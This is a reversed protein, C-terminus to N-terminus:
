PATEGATAVAQPKNVPAGTRRAAQGPAPFPPLDTVPAFSGVLGISCAATLLAGLQLVAMGAIGPGLARVAALSGAWVALLPVAWALLTGLSALPHRLAGGLGRLWALAASRRGPRALEWLGRVTATWLILLVIATLAAAALVIRVSTTEDLRGVADRALRTAPAWIGGTVLAAAVLAVLSLRAYRWWAMLGLGVLEGLRQPRGAAWARWRVIGAHWLVRWAWGGLVALLVPVALVAVSRALTGSVILQLDGPAPDAPLNGLVPALLAQVTLVFPLGLLVPVLWVALLLRPSRLLTAWGHRPSPTGNKAM